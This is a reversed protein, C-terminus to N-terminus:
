RVAPLGRRRGTRDRRLGGLSHGAQRQAAPYSHWQPLRRSSNAAGPLEGCRPQFGPCGGTQGACRVGSRRLQVCVVQLRQTVLQRRAPNGDDGPSRPGLRRGARDAASRDRGGVRRQRIQGACARPRRGPCVGCGAVQGHRRRNGACVGHRHRGSGASLQVRVVAAVPQRRGAPRRRQTGEARQARGAQVRHVVAATGGPQHRPGLPRLTGSPGPQPRDARGM